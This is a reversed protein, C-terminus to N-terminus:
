ETSSNIDRDVIANNFTDGMIAILMNLFVIMILITALVFFIYCISGTYNEKDDPNNFEELNFEGLGLEYMSEFGDLIWIPSVDPVLTDKQRSLSLLYFATGFALYWIVLIISFYLISSMTDLFLSIYFVTRDFLRLWDLM